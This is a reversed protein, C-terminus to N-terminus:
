PRVLGKAAEIVGVNAEPNNGLARSIEVAGATEAQQVAATAEIGAQATGESAVARATEGRVQEVAVTTMGWVTALGTVMRGVHRLGDSQNIGAGAIRGAGLDVEVMEWDTGVSRWSGEVVTGDPMTQVVSVSACGALGLCVILGFLASKMMGDETRRGGDDNLGGDETM